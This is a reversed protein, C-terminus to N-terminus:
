GELAEMTELNIEVWEPTGKMTGVQIYVKGDFEEVAEVGPLIKRLKKKAKHMRVLNKLGQAEDKRVVREPHQIFKVLNEEDYSICWGSEERLEYRVGNEDIAFVRHDEGEYSFAQYPRIGLLHCLPPANEEVTGIQNEKVNEMNEMNGMNEMKVDELEKQIEAESQVEKVSDWLLRLASDPYLKMFQSCRCKKGNNNFGIPCDKCNEVPCDTELWDELDRYLMRKKMDFIM